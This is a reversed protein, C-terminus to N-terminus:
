TPSAGRLKRALANLLPANPCFAAPSDTGAALFPRCHEANRCVACCARAVQIEPAFSAKAAEYEIGFRRLMPILHAEPRQRMLPTESESQEAPPEREKIHAEIFHHVLLRLLAATDLDGIRCADAANECMIRQIQQKGEPTRYPAWGLELALIEPIHEHRAIAAIEDESLPSLAVCDQYSLMVGTGEM